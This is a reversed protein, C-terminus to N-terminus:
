TTKSILSKPNLHEINFCKNITIFCDLRSHHMNQTIRYVKDNISHRDSNNKNM